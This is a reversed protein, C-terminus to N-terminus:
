YTFTELGLYPDYVCYNHLPVVEEIYTNVQVLPLAIENLISWSMNTFPTVTHKFCHTKKKGDVGIGHRIMCDTNNCVSYVVNVMSDVKHHICHTPKTWNTAYGAPSNCSDVVCEYLQSIQMNINRHLFCHTPLDDHTYEAAHICDKVECMRSVTQQMLTVRHFKCHSGYRYFVGYNPENLCCRAICKRFVVDWMNKEGHAKCHTPIGASIGFVPLQGCNEVSCSLIWKGGIYAHTMGTKGVKKLRESTFETRQRKRSAVKKSVRERRNIIMTNKRLSVDKTLKSKGRSALDRRNKNRRVVIIHRKCLGTDGLSGDVVNRCMQGSVYVENDATVHKRKYTYTCSVMITSLFVLVIWNLKM